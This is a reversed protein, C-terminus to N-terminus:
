YRILQIFQKCIVEEIKIPEDGENDRFFDNYFDELEKNKWDDYGIVGKKLIEKVCKEAESEWIRDLDHEIIENIVDERKM